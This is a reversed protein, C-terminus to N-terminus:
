IGQVDAASIVWSRRTSDYVVTNCDVSGKIEQNEEPEQGAKVATEIQCATLDFM